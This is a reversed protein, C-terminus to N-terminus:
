QTVTAAPASTTNATSAAINTPLVSQLVKWVNDLVIPQAAATPHVGDTQVLDWNQAIGDLLFPVLPLNYQKALNTYVAEFKQTYASGYNPPLKIGLLVVKAKAQQALQIMQELNAQMTDTKIGRLGDNAGLELLVYDPQYTQLAAPLRTLGGATTEGSISGNNIVANNQLKQQLLNVWGKDVPIGYAASLSDGWVLIKTPPTTEAAMVMNMLPLVGMLTLILYLARLM